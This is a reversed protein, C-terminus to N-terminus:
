RTLLLVTIFLLFSFAFGLGLWLTRATAPEAQKHVAPEKLMASRWEQLAAETSEFRGNLAKLLLGAFPRCAPTKRVAEELQEVSRNQPLIHKSFCERGGGAAQLMLVAFSFLDYGDDATRMGASWFGRDYVETFQKVSKGMQTVGGFDVLEVDGFGTVMVNEWKLDGFVYGKDHLEKLKGLLHCGILPLWERGKRRLFQQLQQGKVFKMVYFPYSAGAVQADDVDILFRQFSGPSSSLAALVNAESQLDVADFGVKLAYQEKDREVLYVRGNAGEGLLRVVRYHGHKWKGAIIRGETFADNSSTIM